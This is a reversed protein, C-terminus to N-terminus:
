WSAAQQDLKVREQDLSAREEDLRATELQLLHTALARIGQVEREQLEDLEQQKETSAPLCLNPLLALQLLFSNTSGDPICPM